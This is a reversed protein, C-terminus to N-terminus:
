IVSSREGCAQKSISICISQFIVASLDDDDDDDDNSYIYIYIYIRLAKLLNGSKKTSANLITKSEQFNLLNNSYM